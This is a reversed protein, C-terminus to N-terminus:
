PKPGQGAVATKLLGELERIRDEGVVIKDRLAQVGGNTAEHIDDLKKDQADSRTKVVSVVDTLQAATSVALNTSAVVAQGRKAAYFTNILTGLSTTVVGIILLIETLSLPAAAIAAVVAEHAAQALAESSPAVVAQVALALLAFIM